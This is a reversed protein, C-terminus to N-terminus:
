LILHVVHMCNRNLSRLVGVGVKFELEAAFGGLEIGAAVESFLKM